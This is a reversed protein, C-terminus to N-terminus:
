MEERNGCACLLLVRYTGGRHWPTFKMRRRGCESCIMTRGIRRDADVMAPPIHKPAGPEWGERALEQEQQEPTVPIISQSM